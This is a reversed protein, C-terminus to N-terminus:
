CNRYGLLVKMVEQKTLEPYGPLQGDVAKQDFLDDAFKPAFDDPIGLQALSTLCGVSKLFEETDPLINTRYLEYRKPFHRSFYSLM